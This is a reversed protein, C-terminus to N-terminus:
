DNKKATSPHQAVYLPNRVPSIVMENVCVHPPLEALFRVVRGMDEPQLFGRREAETPRVPRQDLFPTSVEAPCLACVRIGHVCEEINMSESLAVIAHKAATYAAGAARVVYKGGWSAVNVIVGGGGDRMSPLVAKACYLAGSLNVDIMRQWDAIDLQDLFRKPVNWGANNVLLNIGGERELLERGAESVAAANAVDLPLLLPTAGVQGLQRAAAELVDLRRGSIAVRWGARALELAAGLGIGTGGGTIWAVKGGNVTAM